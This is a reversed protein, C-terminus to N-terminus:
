LETVVSKEVKKCKYKSLIDCTKMDCLYGDVHACGIEKYVECHRVPDKSKYYLEMGVFRNNNMNLRKQRVDLGIPM